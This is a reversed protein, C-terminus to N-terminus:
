IRTNFKQSGYKESMVSHYIRNKRIVLAANEAWRHGVISFYNLASYPMTSPQVWMGIGERPVNSSALPLATDM